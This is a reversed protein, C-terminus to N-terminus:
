ETGWRPFATVGFWTAATVVLVILGMGVIREAESTGPPANESGAATDRSETTQPACADLSAVLGVARAM